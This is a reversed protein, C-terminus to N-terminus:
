MEFAGTCTQLSCDSKERKFPAGNVMHTHTYSYRHIRQLASNTHITNIKRQM